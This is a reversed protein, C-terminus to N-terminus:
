SDPQDAQKPTRILFALISIIATFVFLLNFGNQIGFAESVQGILIGVVAGGLGSAVYIVGQLSGAQKTLKSAIGQATPFLVSMALGFLMILYSFSTMFMRGLVLSALAFLSFAVLTRREGLKYIIFGGVFRGITFLFAFSAIIYGATSAKQDATMGAIDLSNYLIPFFNLFGAEAAVYFLIFLIVFLIQRDQFLQLVSTLSVKDQGQDAATKAPKFSLLAFLILVILASVGIYFYRWSMNQAFMVNLLIPTVIMGVGFLANALNFIVGAREKFYTPIITAVSVTMSGIGLGVILYFGLFFAVTFSASTGILGIIMLVTGVSMVAKIGKRDAFIGAILSALLFGIQFISVMVGVQSIDLQIDHQVRELIIGKTNQIGGLVFMTAFILFFIISRQIKPM